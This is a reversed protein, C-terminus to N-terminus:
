LDSIQLRVGTPVRCAKYPTEGGATTGLFQGRGESWGEWQGARENRFRSAHPKERCSPQLYGHRVARRLQGRGPRMSALCPVRCRDDSLNVAVMMWSIGVLVAAVWMAFRVVVVM